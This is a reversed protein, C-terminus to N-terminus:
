TQGKLVLTWTNDHQLIRHIHKAPLFRVWPAKYERVGLFVGYSDYVQETYWGKLGITLFWSSHSHPPRHDGGRYFHHLHLSFWKSLSALPLCRLHPIGDENYVTDWRPWQGTM